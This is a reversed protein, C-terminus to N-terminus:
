FSAISKFETHLSLDDYNKLCLLPVFTHMNFGALHTMIDVENGLIMFLIYM